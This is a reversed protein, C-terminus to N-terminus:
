DVFFSLGITDAIKNVIYDAHDTDVNAENGTFYVYIDVAVVQDGSITSALVAGSANDQGVDAVTFYEAASSTAVVVRTLATGDAATKVNDSMGTLKVRLNSADESGEELCVYVTKKLVREGFTDTDDITLTDAGAASRKAESFKVTTGDKAAYNNSATGEAYYWNAAATDASPNTSATVLEAPYLTASINGSSGNALTITTNDPAQRILTATNDNNQGILLFTTDAKATIQMASASVSKNMSFWAYTSTGMLMAAVLLMCLAPILKRFKM